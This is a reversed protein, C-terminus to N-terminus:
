PTNTTASEPPPDVTALLRGDPSFAYENAPLALYERGSDVEYLRLRDESEVAQWPQIWRREVVGVLGAAASYRADQGTASWRPRGTRGDWVIAGSHAIM